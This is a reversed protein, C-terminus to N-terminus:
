EPFLRKFLERMRPTVSRKHFLKPQWELFELAIKRKRELCLDSDEYLWVALCKAYMGSWNMKWISQDLHRKPAPIGTVNEIALAMGTLFAETGTAQVRPHTTIATRLWYLSGDGDIFGRVFHQLWDSPIAPWTTILSKSPTGGLVLLDEYMSTRYITVRYCGNNTPVVKGLGIITAIQELHEGDKSTFTVRCSQPTRLMGGDAWWYGLVYAMEPTWTKFFDNPIRAVM